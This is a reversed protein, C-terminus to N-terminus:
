YFSSVLVRLKTKPFIQGTRCCRKKKTTALFDCSTNKGIHIAKIAESLKVSPKSLGYRNELVKYRLPTGHRRVRSNPIEINLKSLLAPCDMYGRIINLRFAATALKKRQHLSCFKMKDCLQENDMRRPPHISEERWVLHKLFRRQVKEIRKLLYEVNNRCFPVVYELKSYM